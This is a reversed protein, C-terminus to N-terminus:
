AYRQNWYLWGMTLIAARHSRKVHAREDEASRRRWREPAEQGHQRRRSARHAPTSILGARRVTFRGKDVTLIRNQSGPGTQRRRTGLRDRFISDRVPVSPEFGEGELLSDPAFRTELVVARRDRLPM